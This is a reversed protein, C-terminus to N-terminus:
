RIQNKHPDGGAGGGERVLRINGAQGLLAPFKHVSHIEAGTYGSVEGSRLLEDRQSPTWDGHFGLKVREVEQRWADRVALRHASRARQRVVARESKAGYLVCVAFAEGTATAAGRVCVEEGGGRVGARSVNYSGSLRQLEELDNAYRQEDKLFLFEEGESPSSVEELLESGNLVSALVSQFPLSAAEAESVLTILVRRDALRSLLMGRGLLSPRLSIRGALEVRRRTEALRFHQEPPLFGLGSFSHRAADAVAAAALRIAPGGGASPRSRQTRYILAPQLLDRTMYASGMVDAINFGLLSRWGEVGPAFVCLHSFNCFYYSFIYHQPDPDTHKQAEQIRIRIWIDSTYIRIRRDDLL